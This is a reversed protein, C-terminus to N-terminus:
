SQILEKAKKIRSLTKEKGLIEAIEFPEILMKKGTLAVLFPWLFYRIDETEKGISESFHKAEKTLINQLNEKSWDDVELLLNELKDLAKFIEENTMNKWRLLDKKYKLEKKFFFDVLKAIQSRKKLKKLKQHYLTIIKKITKFSIEEGTENIKYVIIIERSGYTAPYYIEKFEPKILDAEVLYPLYFRILDEFCKYNM